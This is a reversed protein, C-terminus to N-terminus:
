NLTGRCQSSNCLCPIKEEEIPFKYDYTIEDGKNIQRKSYIVIKKHSDVNIIKAYCNPTCSHNIFRAFNGCKTADIISESDIRFLYSSGIGINEYRKERMDAITQRVMQGVYEVVMEDQSITELAYLGWGHIGSKSFKLEKKRFKLQNFKLLDSVSDAQTHSLSTLLRRHDLRAERSIGPGTKTVVESGQRGEEAENGITRPRNIYRKKEKMTIKYYGQTRACGTDHQGQEDETKRRKKVFANEPFVTVPHSVWHCYNLWSHRNDQLLMSYTKRLFCADELDIGTALIEYLKQWEDYYNRPHFLPVQAEKEQEARQIQEEIITELETKKRKRKKTPKVDEPPTDAEVPASGVEAESKPAAVKKDKEPQSYSHEIEMTTPPPAPPPSPMKCYSHDMLMMDRLSPEEDASETKESSDEPKEEEDGGESELERAKSAMEVLIEFADLGPSEQKSTKNAAEKAKQSTSKAAKEKIKVPLKGKAITDGNVMDPVISVDLKAKLGDDTDKDETEVDVEEDEEEDESSSSSESTESQTEEWEEESEDDEEGDSSGATSYIEEDSAEASKAELGRKRRHLLAMLDKEIDDDDDDEKESESSRYKKSPKPSGSTQSLDDVKDQEADSDEDQDSGVSRRRQRRKEEKLDEDTPKRKVKFSPMRPMAARLGLGIDLRNFGVSKNISKSWETTNELSSLISRGAVQSKIPETEPKSPKSKEVCDDWWNELCKFASTEVMKRCLDKKMVNKLESVLQTMAEDLTAQRPDSKPPSQQWQQQQQQNQYQQFVNQNQMQNQNFGMGQNWNNGPTQNRWQDYYNTPPSSFTQPMMGQNFNGGPQPQWIGMRAMMQYHPHQEMSAQSQEQQQNTNFQGPHQFGPTFNGLNVPFGGPGQSGQFGMNFTPSGFPGPFGPYGQGMPFNPPPVNMEFNQQQFQNFQTNFNNMTSMNFNNWINVNNQSKIGSNEQIEPNGESLLVKNIGDDSIPSMSMDDSATSQMEMPVTGGDANGNQNSKDDLKDLETNDTPSQKISSERSSIDSTQGAFFSDLLSKSNVTTSPEDVSESKVNGEIPSLKDYMFGPSSSGKYHTKQNDFGDKPSGRKNKRFNSRLLSRDSPSENSYHDNHSGRRFEESSERSHQFHERESHRTDKRHRDKHRDKKGYDSAQDSDTELYKSRSVVKEPESSDALEGESISDTSARTKKLIAAIRSDLTGGIATDSSLDASMEGEKKIGSDKSIDKVQFNQEISTVDHEDQTPTGQGDDDVVADEVKITTGEWPKEVVKEPDKSKSRKLRGERSTDDRKRDDKWRDDRRRDGKDDRRRDDKYRDHRYRDDRNYQDPKREDRGYQDPKREDRGYQDTKRDDKNYHDNKRDDRSYQNRRDDRRRDDRRDSRRDDRWRDDDRRWDDDDDDLDKDDERRSKKKKNKKKQRKNRYNDGRSSNDFQGFNGQNQNPGDNFRNDFMQQQAQFGQEMQNGFQQNIAAGQFNQNWNGFQQNNFNGQQNQFGMMNNQDNSQFGFDGQPQGFQANWQQQNGFGINQQMQEQFQQNFNSGGAPFGQASNGQPFCMPNMGHMDQQNFNFQQQQQQQQAQNTFIQNQMMNPFNIADSPTNFGSVQPTEEPRGDGTGQPISSPIGFEAGQFNMAAIREDLSSFNGSEQSGPQTTTSPESSMSKPTDPEKFKFAHESKPTPTPTPVSDSVYGLSALEPPPRAAESSLRRPDKGRPLEPTKKGGYRPDYPTSGSSSSPTSAKGTTLCDFIRECEKGGADVQVIIIKGMVSMRNLEGAAVKAARTTTFTVTALGLHKNTKPHHMINVDEIIGFKDCLDRLFREKVNDNLNTFTIQKPPVEGIYYKDFKFKPIPLDAKERRWLRSIKSRPDRLMPSPFVNALPGHILGDYRYVKQQGKKIFPDIMLRYNKWKKEPHHGSASPNDMGNTNSSISQRGHSSHFDEM